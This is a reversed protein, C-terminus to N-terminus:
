EEDSGETLDMFPIKKVTTVTKMRLGGSSEDEISERKSATKLKKRPPDAEESKLERKITTGQTLNGIGKCSTLINM